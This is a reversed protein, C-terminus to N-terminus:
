KNLEMLKKFLPLISHKFFTQKRVKGDELQVNFSEDDYKKNINMLYNRLIEMRQYSNKAVLINQVFDYLEDDPKLIGYKIIDKFKQKNGNGNVIGYPVNRELASKDFHGDYQGVALGGDSPSELHSAFVKWPSAGSTDGYYGPYDYITKQNIIKNLIEEKSNDSNENNKNEISNSNSLTIQIPIEYNLNEYFYLYEKEVDGLAKKFLELENYLDIHLKHVYQEDRLSIKKQEVIYKVPLSMIYTKLAINKIKEINEKKNNDIVSGVLNFKLQIIQNTRPEIICEIPYYIAYGLLENNEVDIIYEKQLYIRESPFDNQPEEM